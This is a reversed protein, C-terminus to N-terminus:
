SSWTGRRAPIFRLKSGVANAGAVSTGRRAPIFRTQTLAHRQVCLQEGCTRPIFRSPLSCVVCRLQEGCAAPHFRMIRRGVSSFAYKGGCAAPSGTPRRLPQSRLDTGRVRPPIFTWCVHYSHQGFQERVRRSSRSDVTMGSCSRAQERVSRPIFRDPHRAVANCGRNGARPPIFASGASCGACRNGRV